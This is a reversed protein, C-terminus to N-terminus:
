GEGKAEAKGEGGKGQQGQGAINQTAKTVEAQAKALAEPDMNGRETQARVIKQDRIIKNLEKLLNQIRDKEAKLQAERSDTLLLALIARLNQTLQEAQAIAEQVEQLNSAKSKQLLDILKQFRVDVGSDNALKIADRLIQAKDRDEQKTSGELRQAVLLLQAEFAKFRQALFEQKIRAEEQISAPAKGEDAKAKAPPDAAQVFMALGLTTMSLAVLIRRFM